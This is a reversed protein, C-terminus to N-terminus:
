KDGARLDKADAPLKFAFIEETVTPSEVVKYSFTTEFVKGQTRTKRQYRRCTKEADVWFRVRQGATMTLLTALTPLITASNGFGFGEILPRGDPGTQQSFLVAQGYGQLLALPVTLWHTYQNIKNRGGQGENSLENLSPIIPTMLQMIISATIYPYVGLAVISFNQLSNGSFINLIGLLANSQIFDQLGERNVGPVPIAAFFRFIVLMGLTFVIKARLDPIKFATAVATLM